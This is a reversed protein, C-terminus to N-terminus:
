GGGTKAKILERTREAREALVAGSLGIGLLVLGATAIGLWPALLGLGIGLCAIGLLALVDYRDM